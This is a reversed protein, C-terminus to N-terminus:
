ICYFPWANVMCLWHMEWKIAQVVWTIILGNGAVRAQAIHIVRMGHSLPSSCLHLALLSSYWGDRKDGIERRESLLAGMMEWGTGGGKWWVKHDVQLPHFDQFDQGTSGFVVRSASLVPLM